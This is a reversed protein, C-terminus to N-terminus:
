MENIITQIVPMLTGFPEIILNNYVGLVEYGSFIKCKILKSGTLM